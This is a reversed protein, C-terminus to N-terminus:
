TTLREQDSNCTTTQDPDGPAPGVHPLLSSWGGPLRKQQIPQPKRQRPEHCTKLTQPGAPGTEPPWGPQRAGHTRGLTAYGLRRVCCYNRHLGLPPTRTSPLTAARASSMAHLKPVADGPGPRTRAAPGRSLGHLAHGAPGPLPLGPTPQPDRATSQTPYRKGQTHCKVPNTPDM